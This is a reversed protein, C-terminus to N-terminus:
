KVASVVALTDIYQRFKIVKGDTHAVQAITLDGQLLQKARDIRFRIHYQHPSVGTSQKFLRAFHYSSLRVVAALEALSLDRELHEHIYDIAQKLQQKSLGGKPSRIARERTSYRTLLHVALANAMSDAYLHSGAGDLDLERKLALAINQILPDFFGTLQPVLEISNGGGLEYSLQLLLTPELYLNLFEAEGNWRFTQWLNAPYLGIDGPLSHVTESRAEVVQQLRVPNGVNICIIHQGFSHEPICHPPQRFHALQINKWGAKYSSAIPLCSFISLLTDEQTFDM